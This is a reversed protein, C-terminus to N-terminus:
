QLPWSVTKPTRSHYSHFLTRIIYMPLHYRNRLVSCSSVTGYIYCLLWFTWNKDLFLLSIHNLADNSELWFVSWHEVLKNKISYPIKLPKSHYWIILHTRLIIWSWIPLMCFRRLNGIEFVFVFFQDTKPQFHFFFPCM